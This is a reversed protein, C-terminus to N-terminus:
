KKVGWHIRLSSVLLNLIITRGGAVFGLEWNWGGGFRGMLNDSGRREYTFELRGVKWRKMYAVSYFWLRSVTKEQTSEGGAVEGENKGSKEPVEVRWFMLRLVTM